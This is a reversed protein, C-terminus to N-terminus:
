WGMAWKFLIRLDFQVDEGFLPSCRLINSAGISFRFVHAVFGGGSRAVAHRCSSPPPRPSHRNLLGRPRHHILRLCFNASFFVLPVGLDDMKIPIEKIVWGNQPVM